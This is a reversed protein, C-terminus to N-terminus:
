QLSQNITGSGFTLYDFALTVNFSVLETEDMKLNISDVTLPWVNQLILTRIGQNNGINLNSGNLGYQNITFTTQHNSYSFNSGSYLHSQHGDIKEHWLQFTNWLNQSESDDYVTVAWKGYQRDGAFHLFRGRYPVTRDEISGDPMSTASIKFTTKDYGEQVGIGLDSPWTAVVSFRNSRTGGRFANKFSNISNFNTM